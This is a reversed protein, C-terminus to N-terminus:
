LGALSPSLWIISLLPALQAQWFHRLRQCRQQRLGLITDDLEPVGEALLLGAIVAAAAHPLLSSM